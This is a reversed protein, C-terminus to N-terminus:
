TDTQYDGRIPILSEKYNFTGIYFSTLGLDRTEQTNPDCLLLRGSDSFVFYSGNKWLGLPERIGSLPGVSFQKNWIREKMVWIEICNRITSLLLLSLFDDNYLELRVHEPRAIEPCQIEQFVENGMDFSMIIEHDLNDDMEWLWYCNGDLCTCGHSHPIRYQNSKFYNIDKWSNTSLSYIACYSFEYTDEKKEDWFTFILLLKYDNNITDLGFGVSTIYEETNQPPSVGYKPLMRSDRTALNWLTIHGNLGFICFIGNYPGGFEGCVPKEPHLDRLSLDVLTHDPFICFLDGPYYFEDTGDDEDMYLVILQTNMNKSHKSIFGPNKILAYWSKCVCRLRLLSKVSLRLLIEIVTDQLLEENSTVM